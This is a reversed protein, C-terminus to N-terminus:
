SATSIVEAVRSPAMLLHKVLVWDVSVGLSRLSAELESLRPRQLGYVDPHVELYVREESVAVKVPDYVLAGPTGVKVLSFLSRIDDPHMRICGHSQYQGISSPAITGHIGYGPISLGLWFEGLPNEPWPPVRTLVVRGEAEMEQQISRPVEWTPHREKSVIRFSGTPTRWRGPKGLGVGADFVLHGHEFYYLVAEPLNVVIGDKVLAPVIRRTHVVLRQGPYIRDPNRLGNARAVVRWDVGFRGAIAMVTDGQQVQYETTRDIVESFM